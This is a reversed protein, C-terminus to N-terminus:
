VGWLAHSASFVVSLLLRFGASSAVTHSLVHRKYTAAAASMDQLAAQAQQLASSHRSLEDQAENLTHLRTLISASNSRSGGATM